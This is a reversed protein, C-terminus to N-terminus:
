YSKGTHFHLTSRPNLALIEQTRIQKKKTKKKKRGQLYNSLFFVVFVLVGKFEM